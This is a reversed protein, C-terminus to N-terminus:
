HPPGPKIRSQPVLDWVGCSFIRRAAVLSGVIFVSSRTHQLSSGAHTRTLWETTDLETVGFVMARWAGKDM